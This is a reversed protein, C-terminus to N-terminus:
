EGGAGSPLMESRDLTELARQAAEQVTTSSDQLAVRLAARSLETPSHALTLAAEARILHNEDHLMTIISTELQEVMEVTRAVQLARMRRTRMPSQMEATLLPVVNPDVKKVLMGTSHRVDEELMDFAGLFRQFNFESLSEQVARRVVTEESDLMDVLRSLSGPIGRSRLQSIANAQVIPDEDHLCTLTLANARAGNFEALAEAAARRGQTRGHQLLHEIVGFATQRRVGSAMVYKVMSHQGADDLQDIVRASNGLWGISEIRKLNRSTAKSPERGIKKLLFKMFRQDYRNGIVSLAASPSHPDDLLALLLRIIGGRESKSLIDITVVFAPHRPDNLIQKLVVNDRNALLLFSEVVERQRHQSYRQVGSELATITHERLLQPDRRARVKGPSALETYLSEILSMLTRGALEVNPNAQDTVANILAPILDYENFWLVAECGNTCIQKDTELIMDRLAQTMQSNSKRIRSRCEEPLLHLRQLLARHGNSSHRSLIAGIAMDRLEVFRSELAATLVRVAAENETKALLDFTIATRDSM